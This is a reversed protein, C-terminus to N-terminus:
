AQLADRQLDLHALSRTYHKMAALRPRTAVAARTLPTSSPLYTPIAATARALAQRTVPRPRARDRADKTYTHLARQRRRPWTPVGNPLLLHPCLGPFPPSYTRQRSARPREDVKARIANLNTRLTRTGQRHTSVRLHSHASLDASYTSRSRRAIHPGMCGSAHPTM